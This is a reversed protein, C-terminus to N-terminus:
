SVAPLRSPYLRNRVKLMPYEILKSTLIGVLLAGALYTLAYMEWQHSPSFLRKAVREVATHWLYISYSYRGIAALLGAFWHDRGQSELCAILIMGGALYFCTFGLTPIFPYSERSFLFAPVLLIVGGGLLFPKFRNAFATIRVPQYHYFYSILVGFFLSDARLHFPFLHTRIGYPVSLSTFIRATLCFIGVLISILPIWRFPEKQGRGAWILFILLAPLLLYFQEEVALSWTHGWFVPLYDQLFFLESFLWPHFIGHGRVLEYLITAFIFVYFPPYIKFGRRIFFRKFSISGFKQHEKFLLGSILFGSLVFFLDVGVWGGRIWADIMWDFFRTRGPFPAIHNGIVLFIAVARLIDLPALRSERM